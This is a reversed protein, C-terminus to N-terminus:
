IKYMVGVHEIHYDIGTAVYNYSRISRNSTAVTLNKNRLHFAISQSPPSPTSPTMSFKDLGSMTRTTPMFSSGIDFERRFITAYSFHSSYLIELVYRLNRKQCGVSTMPEIHQLAARVSLVLRM